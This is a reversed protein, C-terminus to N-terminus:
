TSGSDSVFQSFSVMKHLHVSFTLLLLGWAVKGVNFHYILEFPNWEPVQHKETEMNQAM